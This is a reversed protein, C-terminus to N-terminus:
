ASGFNTWFSLHTHYAFQLFKWKRIGVGSVERPQLPFFTNYQFKIMKKEIFLFERQDFRCWYILVLRKVRNKKFGNLQLIKETNIWPIKLKVIKNVASVKYCFQFVKIFHQKYLNNKEFHNQNRLNHQSHLIMVSLFQKHMSAGLSIWIWNLIRHM